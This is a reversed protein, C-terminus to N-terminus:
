GRSATLAALDADWDYRAQAPAPIVIPDFPGIVATTPPKLFFFPKWGASPIEGGMERIHRRYNVGACVVKRPWRLPSLLTDYGIVPADDMPLGRLIEEAQRWDAVLELMTPWRKLDTPEALSGDERLVAVGTTGDRCYTALSWRMRARGPRPGVHRFAPRPRLRHRARGMRRRTGQRVGGQGLRLGAYAPRGRCRLGRDARPHSAAHQGPGPRPVLRARAHDPWAAALDGVVRDLRRPHAARTGPRAREPPRAGDSGRGGRHAGRPAPERRVEHARRHRLRRHVGM